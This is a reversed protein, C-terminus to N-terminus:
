IRRTGWKGILQMDYKYRLAELEDAVRGIDAALKELLPITPQYGTRRVGKRAEVKTITPNVFPVWKGHVSLNRDPHLENIREVLKSLHKTENADLLNDALSLVIDLRVRPPIHTTLAAGLDDDSSLLGWIVQEVARDLRSWEVAVHGIVKFWDDSLKIGKLTPIPITFDKL